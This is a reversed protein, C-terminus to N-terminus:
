YVVRRLPGDLAMGFVGKPNAGGAGSEEFIASVTRHSASNGWDPSITGTSVNEAYHAEHYEYGDSLALSVWPSSAATPNSAASTIAMAVNNANSVTLDPTGITGSGAAETDSDGLVGVGSYEAILISANVSSGGDHSVSVVTAGGTHSLIYWIGVHGGSDGIEVVSYTDGEVDDQVNFAPPSPNSSCVMVV